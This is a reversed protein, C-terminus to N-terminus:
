ANNSGAVSGDGCCARYKGAGLLMRWLTLLQQHIDDVQANYQSLAQVAASLLLSNTASGV